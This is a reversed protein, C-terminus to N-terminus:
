RQAASNGRKAETKNYEATKTEAITDGLKDELSKTLDKCAKGAVGKVSIVANWDDDFDMFVEQLPM